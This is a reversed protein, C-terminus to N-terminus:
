RSLICTERGFWSKLLFDHLFSVVQNAGKGTVAAEPILYNIQKSITDCQIGFIAVKYPTLFYLPGVQEASNPIHVQQAYDFSYHCCGDFSCPDHPDLKLNKDVGARSDAIQKKYAQREKDAHILHDSSAKLLKLQDDETLKAMAGLSRQNGTCVSCLDTRPNQTRINPRYQQWVRCFTRYSVLRVNCEKASELFLRHVKSKPLASPLLKLDPDKFAPVRGPLIMAHISALNDVFKVIDTVDNPTLQSKNGKSRNGHSHLEVGTNQWRKMLNKWRKKGVNHVFLFTTQCVRHGHFVFTCKVRQRDSNKSHGKQTQDSDCCLADIKAIMHENLYNISDDNYHDLELCCLKQELMLTHNLTESCPQSKPGLKCSCRFARVALCLEDTAVSTQGIDVSVIHSLEVSSLAPVQILANNSTPVAVAVSTPAETPQDLVSSLVNQSSFSTSCEMFQAPQRLDVSLIDQPVLGTGTQRRKVEPSGGVPDMSDDTTMVIEEEPEAVDEASSSSEDDSNSPECFYDSLLQLEKRSYCSHGSNANLLKAM